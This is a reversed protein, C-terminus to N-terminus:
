MLVKYKVTLCEIDKFNHNQKSDVDSKNLVIICDENILNLIKPDINVSSNDIM